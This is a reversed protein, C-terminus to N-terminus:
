VNKPEAIFFQGLFFDFLLVLFREAEDLLDAFPVLLDIRKSWFKFIRWPGFPPLIARSPPIQGMHSDLQRSENSGNFQRIRLLQAQYAQNFLSDLFHARQFMLQVFQFTFGVMRLLLVPLANLSVDTTQFR